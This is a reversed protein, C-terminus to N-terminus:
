PQESPLPQEARTLADRVRSELDSAISDVTQGEVNIIWTAASQYLPERLRLLDRVEQLGGLATLAPRREGTLPDTQLREYLTEPRATLWVAMGRGHLARRNAERLIAGGGLAVVHGDGAALESVIQAELDRFFPEGRTAFLERISCGVRSELLEDADVFPWGLREALRRGVSSKGSGRYGILFINM